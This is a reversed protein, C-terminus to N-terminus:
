FLMVLGSAYERGPKRNEDVCLVPLYGASGNKRSM